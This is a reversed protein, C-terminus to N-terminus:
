ETFPTVGEDLFDEEEDEILLEKQHNEETVMTVVDPIHLRDKQLM